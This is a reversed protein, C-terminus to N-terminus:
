QRVYESIGRFYGEAVRVLRSPVSDGNWVTDVTSLRLAEDIHDQFFTEGYCLPGQVKRCLRLNRAYVGTAPTRLSGIALYNVCADRPTCIVPVGTTLSLQQMILSSLTISRETNRSLLIRLFDCRQDPRQLDSNAFGGPVFAMLENKQGPKFAEDKDRVQTEDVNFHIIVTLDSHWHNITDARRELDLDNFIQTFIRRKSAKTLWFTRQSAAILGKSIQRDVAVTLSDQLWQHYTMGLASFGPGKRTIMVEAGAARLLDALMSATTYALDGEAFRIDRFVGHASDKKIFIFKGDLLGNEYGGGLHGPDLAIRVGQLSGGKRPQCNLGSLIATTSLKGAYWQQIDDRRAYEFINRYSELSDWTCGFEYMGKLKDALNAYTYIGDNDVSFYGSVASGLSLLAASKQSYETILARTDRRPVVATIICFLFIWGLHRMGCLYAHRFKEVARAQIPPSPHLQAYIQITDYVVRQAISNILGSYTKASKFIQWLPSQYNAAPFM